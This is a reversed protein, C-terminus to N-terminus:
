LRSCTQNLRLLNGLVGQEVGGRRSANPHNVRSRQGLLRCLDLFHEQSAASETLETRSWKARFSAPTLGGPQSSAPM